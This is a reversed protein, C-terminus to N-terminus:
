PSAPGKRRVQALVQEVTEIIQVSEDNPIVESELLGARLCRNVEEAEYALGQSNVFNLAIGTRNEPLEFRHVQGDSGTLPDPCVEIETPCWFPFGIRILGQTGVITAQRASCADFGASLVAMSGSPYRGLFSVQIEAGQPSLHACAQISEARGLIMSALAVPYIGVELMCGDELASTPTYRQHFDAQVLKVQGIQKGDLLQRAKRIAPFCRTWLAQMFFLRKRRACDVVQRASTADQAMTKECLVHRGHDLCLLSHEVHSTSPSAIYIVDLRDDGALAEYSAHRVPIDFRDAFADATAASRSGVARVVTAPLSRLMATFDNAIGGTGLIGWTVSRPGSDSASSM